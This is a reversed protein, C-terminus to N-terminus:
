LKEIKYKDYPLNTSYLAVNKRENENDVFNMDMQGISIVVIEIPTVSTRKERV